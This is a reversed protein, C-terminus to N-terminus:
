SCRVREAGMRRQKRWDPVASIRHRTREGISARRGATPPLLLITGQIHLAVMLLNM